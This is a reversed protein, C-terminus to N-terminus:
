RLTLRMRPPWPSTVPSHWAAVWSSAAAARAGPLRNCMLTSPTSPNSLVLPLLCLPATHNCTHHHHHTTSYLMQLQRPLWVAWSKLPGRLM